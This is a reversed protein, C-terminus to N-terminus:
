FYSEMDKGIVTMKEAFKMQLATIKQMLEPKETALKMMHEQMAKAKTEMTAEMGKKMKDALAQKTAEDPKPLKKLAEVNATLQEGLKELKAEAAKLSDEDKITLMLDMNESMLGAMKEAAGELTLGSAVSSVASGVASSVSSAKEGMSETMKEKKEGCSLAFFEARQDWRGDM